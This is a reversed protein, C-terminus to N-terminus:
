AQKRNKKNHSDLVSTFIDDLQKRENSGVAFENRYRDLTNIGREMHKDYDDSNYIRKKLGESIAQMQASPNNKDAATLIKL